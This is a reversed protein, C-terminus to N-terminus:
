HTFDRRQRMCLGRHEGHSHCSHQDMRRAHRCAATNPKLCLALQRVNHAVNASASLARWDTEAAVGARATRTWEVSRQRWNLQEDADAAAGDAAASDAYESALASETLIAYLLCIRRTDFGVTRVRSDSVSVATHTGRPALLPFRATTASRQILDLLHAHISAPTPESADASARPLLTVSPLDADGFDRLYYDIHARAACAFYVSLHAVSARILLTLPVHPKSNLSSPTM